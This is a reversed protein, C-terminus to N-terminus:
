NKSVAGSQLLVSVASLNRHWVAMHLPILGCDDPVDVLAGYEILKMVELGKGQDL